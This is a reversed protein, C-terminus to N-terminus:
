FSQSKRNFNAWKIYIIIEDLARFLEQHGGAVVAAHHTDRIATHLPRVTSVNGVQVGLVEEQEPQVSKQYPTSCGHCDFYFIDCNQHLM